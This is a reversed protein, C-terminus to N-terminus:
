KRYLIGERFRTWNDKTNERFSRRWHRPHTLLYVTSVGKELSSHPSSPRYFHPYGLDSYIAQFANLLHADYGELVIGTEKRLSEDLFSFNSIGLIRNVFDGHSAASRIPHELERNLRMVNAAFRERMEPFHAEVEDRTRLRYKKVLDSLEEFHYGVEFGAKQLKRMRPLDITRLRFYYSSFAGAALETEMFADCAAPDTDVDHRLIFYKGKVAEQKLLTYFAEIGLMTYGSKSALQLLERYEGFRSPLLYDSYFRHWISM